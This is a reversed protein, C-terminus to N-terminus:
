FVMGIETASRIDSLEQYNENKYFLAGTRTGIPWLEKKFHRLLTTKGSGSSGALVLFDGEEIVLSNMVLAEKKEEPYTFSLNRIEALAVM